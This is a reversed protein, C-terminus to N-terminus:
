PSNNEHDGRLICNTAYQVISLFFDLFNLFIFSKKEFNIIIDKIVVFILPVGILQISM